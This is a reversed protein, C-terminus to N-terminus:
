RFIYYSNGKKEKGKGKKEKKRKGKKKKKEKRKERKKRKKSENCFHVEFSEGCLFWLKEQMTIVGIIASTNLDRNIYMIVSFM